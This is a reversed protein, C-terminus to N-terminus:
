GGPRRDGGVGGQDIRQQRRLAKREQVFERQQERFEAIIQEREEETLDPNQLRQRLQRRNDRIDQMNDRFEARRQAIVPPLPRPPRNERFWDRLEDALARADAIADANAERWAEVTERIEEDTPDEGLADIAARRSEALAARQEQLANRKEKIEDPVEFIPDDPRYEHILDRLEQSLAHVEALAGANAEHWAEMAERKEAITADEGLAELATRRSDRLADRMAKVEARLELIEEPVENLFDPAEFEPDMGGPFGEPPGPQAFTAGAILGLSCLTIIFRKM